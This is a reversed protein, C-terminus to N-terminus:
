SEIADALVRMDFAGIQSLMTTFDVVDRAEIAKGDQWRVSLSFVMDVDNNSKKHKATFRAHGIVLGNEEAMEFVEIHINEFAKCYATHFQAFGSAGRKQLNLGHIECEESMLDFIADHECNNWVRQFWELTLEKGTKM